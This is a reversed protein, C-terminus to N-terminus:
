ILIERGNAGGFCKNQNEWQLVWQIVKTFLTPKSIRRKFVEFEMTVRVNKEKTYVSVLM